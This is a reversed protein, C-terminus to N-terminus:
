RTNRNHDSDTLLFCNCFIQLFSEQIIQDVCVDPIHFMVTQKFTSSLTCEKRTPLLRHM